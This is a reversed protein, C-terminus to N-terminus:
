RRIERDDAGNRDQAQEDIKRERDSATSGVPAAEGCDSRERGARWRQLRKLGENGFETQSHWHGRLETAGPFRLKSSLHTGLCLKLVLLVSPTLTHNDVNAREARTLPPLALIV